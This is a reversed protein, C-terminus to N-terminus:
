KSRDKKTRGPRTNDILRKETNSIINEVDRKKNKKNSERLRDIANIRRQNKREPFNSPKM